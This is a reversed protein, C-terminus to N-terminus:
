FGQVADAAFLVRCVFSVPCIFQTSIMIIVTFFKESIYAYKLHVIDSQVKWNVQSLM